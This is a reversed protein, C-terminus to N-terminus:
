RIGRKYIKNNMSVVTDVDVSDTTNKFDNIANVYKKYYETSTFIDAEAKYVEFAKHVIYFQIASLLTPPIVLTDGILYDPPTEYYNVNVDTGNSINNFKLVNPSVQYYGMYDISNRPRLNLNEDYVDVIQIPMNTLTYEYTDTVMSITEGGLWLLTDEAVKDKAMNLLTLLTTVNDPVTLDSIKQGVLSTKSLTTILENATM